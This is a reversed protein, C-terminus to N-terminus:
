KSAPCLREFVAVSNATLHLSQNAQTKKNERTEIQYCSCLRLILSSYFKNRAVAFHSNERGYELPPVSFPGSINLFLFDSDLYLHLRLLVGLEETSFARRLGLGGIRFLRYHPDTGMNAPLQIDGAPTQNQDPCFPFGVRWDGM